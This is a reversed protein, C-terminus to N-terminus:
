SRIRQISLTCCSTEFIFPAKPTNPHMAGVLPGKNYCLLQACAELDPHLPIMDLRPKKRKRGEKLLLTVLILDRLLHMEVLFAIMFFHMGQLQEKQPSALEILM